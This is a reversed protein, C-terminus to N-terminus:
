EFTERLHCTLQIKLMDEANNFSINLLEEIKRLRQYLTNIHIHLTKATETASKNSSIYIMLTKELDKNQLKESRLQSFIEETFEEIEQIPQNLFFRNVGIEEYRILGFKNRNILFALSKNAENYSKVINKIEKYPTGLGIRIDNKDYREEDEIIMKIHHIIRNVDKTNPVSFLLTVKNHFGFILKNIKPFGKKIKSLLRQIRAEIEFPEFLDPIECLVVFTYTSFELNFKHGKAILTKHDHNELLQNFYEQVKKYHIETMSIKKALELALVSGSQEITITDMSSLPHSLTIIICGLLATGVIIPYFYYDQNNMEIYAPSNKHISILNSIHDISFKKQNQNRPYFEGDLFDVYGVPMGLMRNTEYIIAKIGKNNLSLQTLTDHVNIRQQLLKNKEELENSLQTVKNLRTHAEKYLKANNYAIAVQHSFGQLLDLDRETFKKKKSFQLITMTGIRTDGLSVPVTIMARAMDGNKVFSWNEKSINIRDMLIEQKSHHIRPIGDIFVQGSTSEGIRTKYQIYEKPLGVTTLPVLLNTKSDFIRFVGADGSPIVNLAIQFIKKLLENLDLSSNLIRIGEIVKELEKNKSKSIEKYYLVSFLLYLHDFEFENFINRDFFCVIVQFSDEFTMGMYTINNQQLFTYNTDKDNLPIPPPYVAPQHGSFSCLEMMSHKGLWVQYPTNKFKKEIFKEISTLNLM